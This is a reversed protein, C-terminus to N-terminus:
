NTKNSIKDRFSWNVEDNLETFNSFEVSMSGSEDVHSVIKVFNFGKTTFSELRRPNKGYKKGFPNKLKSHWASATIEYTDFGFLSKELKMAETFHTDGSVLFFASKNKKQIENTWSKLNNPHDNELSEKPSYAGFFQGGNFIISPTNANMSLEKLMWKEQAMGWHSYRAKSGSTKRFSRNDLFILKHGYANLISAVGMKNKYSGTIDDAGFFAKFISKAEDKYKWSSNGDNQGFDHDDWTSLSAVLVPSRFLEIRRFSDVYRQWIQDSSKPSEKKKYFDFSDVYVNDGNLILYDLDEMETIVKKWLKKQRPIFRDYDAMCSSVIFSIDRKGSSSTKFKRLDMRKFESDKFELYYTKGDDLGKLVLRSVKWLNSGWTKHSIKIDVNSLINFDDDLINVQYTWKKPIEEGIYFKSRRPSLINFQAQDSVTAVQLMPIRYMTEKDKSQFSSCSIMSMFGACIVLVKLLNNKKLIM